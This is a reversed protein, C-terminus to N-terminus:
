GLGERRDTVTKKQKEKQNKQFIQIRNKKVRMCFNGETCFKRGAIKDERAVENGRVFKNEHLKSGNGNVQLFQCTWVLM